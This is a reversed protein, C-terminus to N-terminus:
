FSISTSESASFYAHVQFVFYLEFNPVKTGLIFTFLPLSSQLSPSQKYRACEAQRMLQLFCGGESSQGGPPSSYAATRRSHKSGRQSDPNCLLVGCHEGLCHWHHEAFPGCGKSVSVSKKNSFIEVHKQVFLCVVQATRKLCTCM